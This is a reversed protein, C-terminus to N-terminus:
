EKGPPIGAIHGVIQWYLDVEQQIYTQILAENVQRVRGKMRLLTELVKERMDGKLRDYLLLLKDFAGQTGKREFVEPLHPSGGGTLLWPELLKLILKEPYSSLALLAPERTLGQNLLPILSPVLEPV